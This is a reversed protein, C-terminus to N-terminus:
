KTARLHNFITLCALFVRWDDPSDWTLFDYTGDAHLQVTGRRDTIATPELEARIQRYAATQPGWSPSSQAATKIDILFNGPTRKTLEGRRDWTGAFGYSQSYGMTEIEHWVPDVDDCFAKWARLYGHFIAHEPAELIAGEDLTGNDFAETMAHVYTGRMQASLLIDQPM